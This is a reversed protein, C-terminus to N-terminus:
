FKTTLRPAVGKIEKSLLSWSEMAERLEKVHTIESWRSRRKSKSWAVLKKPRDKRKAPKM